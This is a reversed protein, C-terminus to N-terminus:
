GPQFEKHEDPRAVLYNFPERKIPQTWANVLIKGKFVLQLTSSWPFGKIVKPMPGITVSLNPTHLQDLRRLWDKWKRITYLPVVKRKENCSIELDVREKDFTITIHYSPIMVPTKMTNIILLQTPIINTMGLLGYSFNESYNTNTKSPSRAYTICEIPLAGAITTTLQQGEDGTSINTHAVEVLNFLKSETLYVRQTVVNTNNKKNPQKNKKKARKSM